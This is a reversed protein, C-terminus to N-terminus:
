RHVAKGKGKIQYGGLNVEFLADVGRPSGTSLREIYEQETAHPVCEAVESAFPPRVGIGDVAGGIPGVEPGAERDDDGHDPNPERECIASELPFGLARFGNLYLFTFPPNWGPFDIGM